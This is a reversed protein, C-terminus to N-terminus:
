TEFVGVGLTTATGRDLRLYVSRADHSPLAYWRYPADVARLIESVEWYMDFAAPRVPTRPGRGFDIVLTPERRVEPGRTITAPTMGSCRLWEAVQDPELYHGDIHFVTDAETSWAQEFLAAPWPEEGLSGVADESLEVIRARALAAFADGSSLLPIMATVEGSSAIEVRVRDGHTVSSADLVEYAVDFSRGDELVVRPQEAGLHFLRAFVM